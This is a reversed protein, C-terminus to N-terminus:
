LSFFAGCSGCEMLSEGPSDPDEVPRADTAKCNPCARAEGHPQVSPFDPLRYEDPMPQPKPGKGYTSAPTDFPGDEGRWVGTDTKMRSIEGPPPMQRYPWDARKKQHKKRTRIIDRDRMAKAQPGYSREYDEIEGIAEDPAGDDKGSFDSLPRDRRAQWKRVREEMEDHLQNFRALEADTLGLDLKMQEPTKTYYASEFGRYKMVMEPPLLKESSWLVDQAAAEKSVMKDRLLDSVEKPLSDLLGGKEMGKILSHYAYSDQPRIRLARELEYIAGGIEGEQALAIGLMFHAPGNYPNSDLSKKLLDAAEDPKGHEFAEKGEEYLKKALLPDGRGRAAQVGMEKLHKRDEETLELAPEQIRIRVTDQVGPPLSTWRFHTWYKDIGLRDAMSRRTDAPTGAWWSAADEATKRRAQIGMARLEQKDRDTLDLSPEGGKQPRKPPESGKRYPVAEVDNRSPAPRGSHNATWHKYFVNDVGDKTFNKLAVGCEPCTIRWEWGGTPEDIEDLYKPPRLDPHDIAYHDILASRAFDASDFFQSEGDLDPIFRGCEYCAEMWGEPYETPYQAAPQNIFTRGPGQPPPASRRLPRGYITGLDTVDEDPEDEATGAGKHLPIPPNGTEDILSDDLHKRPKPPLFEPTEHPDIDPVLVAGTREQLGEAVQELAKRDAQPNDQAVENVVQRVQSQPTPPPQAPQGPEAQPQQQPPMTPSPPTPPTWRPHSPDEKSAPLGSETGGIPTGTGYSKETATKPDNIGEVIGHHWNRGCKNCKATEFDAPMLGYDDSGCYPCCPKDGESEKFFTATEPDPEKPVLLPNSPLVQQTLGKLSASIGMGGLFGRDEETFLEAPERRGRGIDDGCRTCSEDQEMFFLPQPVHESDTAWPADTGPAPPLILHKDVLEDIIDQGCTPCYVESRYLYADLGPAEEKLDERFREADTHASKLLLPADELDEVVKIPTESVAQKAGSAARPAAGSVLLDIERAIRRVDNDKIQGFQALVQAARYAPESPHAANKKVLGKMQWLRQMEEPTAEGREYRRQLRDQEKRTKAPIPPNGRGTGAEKFRCGFGGKHWHEHWQHGCTCVSKDKESETFGHCECRHSATLAHPVRRGTRKVEELSRAGLARALEKVRPLESPPTDLYVKVGEPFRSIAASFGEGFVQSVIRRVEETDGLGTLVEWDTNGRRGGHKTREPETGKEGFPMNYDDDEGPRAHHQETAFGPDDYLEAKDFGGVGGGPTPLMTGKKDLLPSHPM